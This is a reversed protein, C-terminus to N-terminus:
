MTVHDGLGHSANTERRQEQSQSTVEPDGRSSGLESAASEQDTSTPVATWPPKLWVTSGYPFKPPFHNSVFSLEARYTPELRENTDTLTPNLFCMAQSKNKGTKVCSVQDHKRSDNLQGNPYQWRAIVGDPKIELCAHTFDELPDYLFRVGGEDDIIYDHDARVEASVFMSDPEDHTGTEHATDFAM